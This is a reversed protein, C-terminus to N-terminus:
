ITEALCNNCIDVFRLRKLYGVWHVTGRSSLVGICVFLFAAMLLELRLTCVESIKSDYCLPTM